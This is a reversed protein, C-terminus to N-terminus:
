RTEGGRSVALYAQFESSAFLQDIAKDFAHMLILLMEGQVGKPEDVDGLVKFAMVVKKEAKSYLKWTVAISASGKSRVDNGEQGGPICVAVNIKDITAGLMFRSLDSGEGFLDPSAEPLAFGKATLYKRLRDDLMKTLEATKETPLWALDSGASCFWGMTIRGMKELREFSVVM